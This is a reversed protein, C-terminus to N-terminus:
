FTRFFAIIGLVGGAQSILLALGMVALVAVVAFRHGKLMSGCPCGETPQGAESGCCGAMRFGGKDAKSHEQNM